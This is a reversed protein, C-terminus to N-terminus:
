EPQSEDHSISAVYQDIKHRDERTLESFQIGYKYGVDGMRASRVVEGKTEISGFGPLSFYCVIQENLELIEETEILIGTISVDHSVCFIGIGERKTKVRVRLPVRKNRLLKASAFDGVAELLQVPQVPKTIYLNAMSKAAREIEAHVDRCVLVFSFDNQGPAGRLLTCLEDGGMDDLLLESIIIDFPNTHHLQSAEEGTAVSTIQFNSRNLLHSNRERFTESPSVLLIRKM